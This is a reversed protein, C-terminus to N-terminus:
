QGLVGTKVIVVAFFFLALAALLLGTRVNAARKDAPNTPHAM